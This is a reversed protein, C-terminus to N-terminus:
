IAKFITSWLYCKSDFNKSLRLGNSHTLSTFNRSTITNQLFFLINFM